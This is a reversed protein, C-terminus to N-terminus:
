NTMTKRFYYISQILSLFFPIALFFCTPEDTNNLSFFAVIMIFCIHPIINTITKFTLRIKFKFFIIICSILLALLFSFVYAIGLTQLNYFSYFTYIFAIIILSLILEIVFFINENKTVIYIYNIVWLLSKFVVSVLLLILLNNAVLFDENYFLTILFSSFLILIILIPSILNIVLQIQSNINESIKDLSPQNSIRSLFEPNLTSVIVNSFNSMITYACAFLGSVVLGEERILYITILYITINPLSFSFSIFSGTKVMSLFRNFVNSFKIKIKEYKLKKLFFTNFIVPFFATLVIVLPIGKEGLFYYLIVASVFVLLSSFINSKTLYSYNESAQLVSFQSTNYQSLLPMVCLLLIYFNYESNNFTFYGIQNNFLIIFLFGIFGSILALKKYTSIEILFLNKKNHYFRAIDRTALTGLGFNFITGIIGITSALTFILGIGEVSLLEAAVKSRGIAFLIIIFQGLGLISINRYIKRFDM